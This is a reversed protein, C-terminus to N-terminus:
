RQRESASSRRVTASARSLLDSKGLVAGGLVLSVLFCDGAIIPLISWELIPHGLYTQVAIALLGLLFAAGTLHIMGRRSADTLSTRETLWAVLPVAQLAHFGLGHLWIINGGLGIYRGSNLSIWIGAAFSLMVAVMAYRIGLVLKPHLVYSRRRFYQAAVALYGVVLLLAVLGFLAGVTVDFISGNEPFRPNVGRFHQITEAAYSYLALVIYFRRFVARGKKGLGSFPLVAATSLIFLGLAANFSVAKSVDGDPAVAGGYLLVWIVCGAALLLGLLGTMVFWREGEFLKIASAPRKEADTKKM